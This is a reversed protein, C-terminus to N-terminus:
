ERDELVLSILERSVGERELHRRLADVLRELRRFLPKADLRLMRAIDVVKRGDEYRYALILADQEALGSKFRALGDRFRELAEEREKEALAQDPSGGAAPITALVEASEFTRAFRVPLQATLHDLEQASLTVGHKIRLLAYAESSPLRDRVLYKELLQLVEGGSEAEVSAHWRGSKTRQFEIAERQVVTTLYTQVKCRGQFKRLVAYNDDILKVKVRSGFDEADEPSLRHRRATFAVVRDLWPLLALFEHEWRTGDQSGAVANSSSVCHSRATAVPTTRSPMLVTFRRATVQGVRGARPRILWNADQAIAPPSM